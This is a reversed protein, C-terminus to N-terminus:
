WGNGPLIYNEFTKWDEDSIDKITCKIFYGDSSMRKPSSWDWYGKMSPLRTKQCLYRLAIVGSENYAAVTEYDSIGYGRLELRITDGCQWTIPFSIGPYAVKVKGNSHHVGANNGNVSIIAIQNEEYVFGGYQNITVSYTHRETFQKALGAARKMASAESRSLRNEYKELFGFVQRSKEALSEINSVSFQKIQDREALMKKHEYQEKMERVENAQASAPYRALFQEAVEPFTAYRFDFCDRVRKLEMEILKNSIETKLQETKPKRNEIVSHDLTKLEEYIEHLMQEDNTQNVKNELRNLEEDLLTNRNFTVQDSAPTQTQELRQAVSLTQNELVAIQQQELFQNIATKSFIGSAFLVLFISAILLLLCSRQVFKKWALRIPREAIWRFLHEYGFPKIQGPKGTETVIEGVASLGFYRINKIKTGERLITEFDNWHSRIFRRVVQGGGNSSNVIQQYFAAKDCKTMGICMDVQRIRSKPTTNYQLAVDYAAKLNARLKERIITRKEDNNDAIDATDILLIIIDSDFLHKSLQATREPTMDNIAHRFDEGPYDVTLINIVTQSRPLQLNFNLLSTISTPPPFQGNQFARDLTNLYQATEADKPYLKLSPQLPDLGIFALGALFCSKGTGEAGLLSVRFINKNLNSRLKNDASSM